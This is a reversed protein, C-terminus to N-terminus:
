TSRAVGSEASQLVAYVNELNTMRALETQDITVGLVTELKALIEIARLSDAGHDDVFLSTDSLEDPELELIECIIEKVIKKQEDPIEPM